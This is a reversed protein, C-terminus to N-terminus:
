FKRAYSLAISDADLGEYRTYDLRIGDRPNLAYEAGTGYAIGDTDLGGDLNQYAYGVRSVLDIRKTLPTRNVLFAGATYDLGGGLEIDDNLQVSGELEAGLFRNLQYGTRLQAGFGETDVDYWNIGANGYFHSPSTAPQNFRGRLAPVAGFAGAGLAGAGIVSSAPNFGVGNHTGVHHSLGAILQQGSHQQVVPAVPYATGSQCGGVSQAGFSGVSPATPIQVVSQPGVHAVKQCATVPQTAVSQAYGVPAFQGVQGQNFQNFQGGCGQVCPAKASPLGFGSGFGSGGFLSCGSLVTSALALIAIRM